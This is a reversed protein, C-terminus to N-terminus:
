MIITENSITNDEPMGKVIFNLFSNGLGTRKYLSVGEPHLLRRNGGRKNLSEYEKASIKDVLGCSQLGWLHVQIVEKDYNQGMKEVLRKETTYYDLQKLIFISLYDLQDLLNMYISKNSCDISDPHICAMIYTAYMKCKEANLEDKAKQLTPLVDDKFVPPDVYLKGQIQEEVFDIKDKLENLVDIINNVQLMNLYDCFGNVLAAMPNPNVVFKLLQHSIFEAGSTKSIEIHDM